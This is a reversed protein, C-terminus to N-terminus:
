RHQLSEQMDAIAREGRTKMESYRENLQQVAVHWRDALDRNEAFCDPGDAEAQVLAERIFTLERHGAEQCSHGLPLIHVLYAEHVSITTLYGQILRLIERIENATYTSAQLISDTSDVVRVIREFASIFERVGEIMSPVHHDIARAPQKNQLRRTLSYAVLGGTVAGVGVAPLLQIWQSVEM